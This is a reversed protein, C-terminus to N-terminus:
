QGKLFKALMLPHATLRKCNQMIYILAKYSVRCDILYQLEDKTVTNQQIRDLINVLLRFHKSLIGLDQSFQLITPLQAEEEIRCINLLHEM